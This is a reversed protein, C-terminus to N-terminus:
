RGCRSAVRMDAEGQCVTNDRKRAPLGHILESVRRGGGAPQDIMVEHRGLGNKQLVTLLPEGTKTPMQPLNEGGGDFVPSRLRPRHIREIGSQALNGASLHELVRGLESEVSFRRMRQSLQDFMRQSADTVIRSSQEGPLVRSQEIGALRRRAISEENAGVRPSSPTRGAAAVSHPGGTGILLLPCQGRSTLALTRLPCIAG